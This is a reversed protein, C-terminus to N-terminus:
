FLIKFDEDTQLHERFVPEKRAIYVITGLDYEHKSENFIGAHNYETNTCNVGVSNKPNYCLFLERYIGTTAETPTVIKSVEVLDFMYNKADTIDNTVAYEVSTESNDNITVTIVPNPSVSDVGPFNPDTVNGNTDKVGFLINKTDQNDIRRAFNLESTEQIFWDTSTLTEPFTENITITGGAASAITFTGQHLGVLQLKHSTTVSSLDSSTTLTNGSATCAGDNGSTIVPNIKIMGQVDFLSKQFATNKLYELTVPAPLIDSTDTGDDFQEYYIALRNSIGTSLMKMRGSNQVSENVLPYSLTISIENPDVNKGVYKIKDVLVVGNEDTLFFTANVLSNNEIYGVGAQVFDADLGSIYMEGLANVNRYLSGIISADIATTPATANTKTNYMLRVSQKIEKRQVLDLAEIVAVTSTDHDWAFIGYDYNVIGLETIKRELYTSNLGKIMCWESNMHILELDGIDSTGDTFFNTWTTANKPKYGIHVTTNGVGNTFMQNTEETYFKGPQDAATGIIDNPFALHTNVSGTNQKIKILTGFGWIPNARGFGLYLNGNQLMDYFLAREQPTSTGVLLNHYITM